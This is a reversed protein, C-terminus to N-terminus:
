AHKIVGKPATAIPSDLLLMIQRSPAQLMQNEYFFILLLLIVVFPKFMSELGIASASPAGFVSGSIARAFLGTLYALLMYVAKILLQALWPRQLNAKTALSRLFDLVESAVVALAFILVVVALYHQGKGLETQHAIGALFALTGFISDYLQLFMSDMAAGTDLTVLTAAPGLESTYVSDLDDASGSM